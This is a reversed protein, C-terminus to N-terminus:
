FVRTGRAWALVAGALTQPNCSPQKNTPYVRATSMPTARGPCQPMIEQRMQILLPLATRPPAEARQSSSSASPANPEM